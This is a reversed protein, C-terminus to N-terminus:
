ITTPIILRKYNLVTRLACSWAHITYYWIKLTTIRNALSVLTKRLQYVTTIEDPSSHELCSSDVEEESSYYYWNSFYSCNLSLINLLLCDAITHYRCIYSICYRSQNYTQRDSTLKQFKTFYKLWKSMFAYTHTKQSTSIRKYPAIDRGVTM